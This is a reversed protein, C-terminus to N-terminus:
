VVLDHNGSERKTCFPRTLTAQEAAGHTPANEGPAAAAELQAQPLRLVATRCARAGLRTGESSWRFSHVHGEWPAWQGGGNM